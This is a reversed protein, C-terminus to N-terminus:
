EWSIRIDDEESGTMGDTARWVTCSSAGICSASRDPGSTFEAGGCPVDHQCRYWHNNTHPRRDIVDVSTIRTGPPSFLSRSFFLDKCHPCDVPQHPGIHTYDRVSQLTYTQSGPLAVSEESM